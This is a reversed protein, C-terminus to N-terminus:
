RLNILVPILGRGSEWGRLAKGVIAGAAASKDEARMAHGPTSSTTLLDGISVSGFHADVKCYAKGAVSVPVRNPRGQHDLVIGPTYCGAGAVVGVVTPELARSCAGVTWEDRLTVVTGPERSLSDASDFEEAMDAARLRIDGTSGDLRIRETGATDLVVLDGDQGQGGLTINGTSADLHITANASDGVDLAGGPFLALNGSQGNGGARVWATDGSLHITALTQDSVASDGAYQTYLTLDGDHGNGGARINGNAADLHITANNQDAVHFPLATSAFLALDGDKGNGGARVNGSAADLHITAFTQNAIDEPQTITPFLSLDGDSGGGGARINGTGGSM